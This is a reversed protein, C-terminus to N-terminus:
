YIEDEVGRIEKKIDEYRYGKRIFSNILKSKQEFDNLDISHSILYKKLEKKLLEKEKSFDYEEDIIKTTSSCIEFDFGQNILFSYANEKLKQYNKNKAVIYKRLQVEAKEKELEDDFSLKDILEKNFGEEYCKQIIKNKGYSRLNLLDVYEYIYDNDNILNHEKLYSVIKSADEKPLSKKIILREYIDKETYSGKSVLNLVYERAKNLNEYNIIEQYEDDSLKKEKYLYFHSYTSESVKLNEGNSFIITIHSKNFKVKEIYRGDKESQVNICRWCIKMFLM